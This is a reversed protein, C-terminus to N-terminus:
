GKKQHSVLLNKISIYINSRLINEIEWASNKGMATSHNNNEILPPKEYEM